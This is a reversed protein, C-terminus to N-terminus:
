KAFRFFGQSSKAIAASMKTGPITISKCFFGIIANGRPEPLQRSEPGIYPTSIIEGDTACMKPESAIRRETNITIRYKQARRTM